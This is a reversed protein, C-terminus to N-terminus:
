CGGGGGTAPPRVARIDREDIHFHHIGFAAAARSVLRAHIEFNGAGGDPAATIVAALFSAGVRGEEVGLAADVAGAKAGGQLGAADGDGCPPGSECGRGQLQFGLRDLKM